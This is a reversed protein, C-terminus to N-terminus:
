GPRKYSNQAQKEAEALSVPAMTPNIGGGSEGIAGHILGKSLPSSM